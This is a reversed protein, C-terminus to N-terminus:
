TGAANSLSILSLELLSRTQNTRIELFRLAVIVGDGEVVVDGLAQVVGVRGILGDEFVIGM